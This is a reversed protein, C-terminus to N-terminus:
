NTNEIKLYEVYEELCMELENIKKAHEVGVYRWHWPEYSVGTLEKKNEPYRLIFGYNEANEVLWKFEKTNAFDKKINNFDVALGISHESTEAKNVFKAAQIEADEKTRGYSMFQKVKQNFLNAQYEKSRYASQVWINSAGQNKMDKLMQLLEEVARSDFQKSSNINALEVEFDEPIPNEHNVLVIRWDEKEEEVIENVVEATENADNKINQYDSLNQSIKNQKINKLKIHIIITTIIMVVMILLLLLKFIFDFVKKSM